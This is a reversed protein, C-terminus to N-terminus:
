NRRGIFREYAEILAEVQSDLRHAALFREQAQTSLSKRLVEDGALRRIARAIHHPDRQVLIASKGHELMDTIGPVAVAVIPCGARMAELLVYPQGEATSCLICLDSAGLLSPVDKVFGLIRVRDSLDRHAVQRRAWRELDGYGALLLVADMDRCAEAADLFLGIGKYEVLRAGMTVVFSSQPLGLTRRVQVRDPRSGNIIPLGNHVVTSRDPRILSHKLAALQGSESVAILGSTSSTLAREATRILFAKAATGARLFAYCHPTHVVPVGVLRAALRGLLGAKTGHTHVLDHHGVKLERRLCIIARADAWPHCSRRMPLLKITVGANSMTQIADAYLPDKRGDCCHLTVDHGRAVLQPLVLTMYTTVGGAFAETVHAISMRGNLM